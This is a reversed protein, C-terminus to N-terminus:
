KKGGGIINYATITMFLVASPILQNGGAYGALAFLFTLMFTSFSSYILAKKVRVRYQIAGITLMAFFGILFINIFQGGTYQMPTGLMVEGIDTSNPIEYFFSSSNAM